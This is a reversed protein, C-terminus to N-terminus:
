SSGIMNMNMVNLLNQALIFLNGISQKHKNKKNQGEMDFVHFILGTKIAKLIASIHSGTSKM